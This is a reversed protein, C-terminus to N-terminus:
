STDSIINLLSTIAKIGNESIAELAEVPIADPGVAKGHRIKSIAHRVESELISPGEVDKTISFPAGRDDQFFDEIYESWRNLIDNKNILIGGNKAKVYRSDTPRKKGVIEQIKKAMYTSATYLIAKKQEIENCQENIWADKAENCKKRMQKNLEHYKMEDQKCKRREEMLELIEVTMQKKHPKHKTKPVLEDLIENICDMM